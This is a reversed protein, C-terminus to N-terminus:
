DQVKIKLPSASLGLRIARISQGLNWIRAGVSGGVPFDKAEIVCSVKLRIVLNEYWSYPKRLGSMREQVVHPFLHM